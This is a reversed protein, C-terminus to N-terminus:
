FMGNGNRSHEPMEQLVDKHEVIKGAGDLRFNDIGAYDPEDPWVQRPRVAHESSSKIRSGRVSM